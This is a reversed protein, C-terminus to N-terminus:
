KAEMHEKVKHCKREKLNYNLQKDFIPHKSTSIEFYGRPIEVYDHM